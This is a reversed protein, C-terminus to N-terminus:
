IQRWAMDRVHYQVPTYDAESVRRTPEIQSPLLAKFGVQAIVSMDAM